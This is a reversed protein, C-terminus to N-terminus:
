ASDTAQQAAQQAADGIQKAAEHLEPNTELEAALEQAAAALTRLATALETPTRGSELALAAGVAAAVRERAHVIVPDAPPIELPSEPSEPLEPTIAAPAEAANPVAPEAAETAPPQDPEPEATLGAEIFRELDSTRVRMRRRGVRVAVLEGQDIWNRITQQTLKLRDATEAITLFEENSPQANDTTISTPQAV